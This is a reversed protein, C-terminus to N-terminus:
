LEDTSFALGIMVSLSMLLGRRPKCCRQALDAISPLLLLASIPDQCFFPVHEAESVVGIHVPLASGYMNSMLAWVHSGVNSIGTRGSLRSASKSGTVRQM